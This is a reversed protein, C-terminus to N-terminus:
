GPRGRLLRRVLARGRTRAEVNPGEMAAIPPRLGMEGLGALVQIYNDFGSEQLSRWTLEGEAYRRLLDSHNHPSTSAM